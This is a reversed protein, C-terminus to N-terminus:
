ETKREAKAIADKLETLWSPENFTVQVSRAAIKAARLLEPVAEINIGELKQELTYLKMSDSILEALRPGENLAVNPADGCFNVCAIIREANARGTAKSYGALLAIAVPDNDRNRIVCDYGHRVEGVRWPTPTHKLKSM